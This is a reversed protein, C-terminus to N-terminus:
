WSGGRGGGGSSSGGGFSVGTGRSGARQLQERVAPDALQFRRWADADLPRGAQVDNMWADVMSQHVYDPYRRQLSTLRYLLEARVVDDALNRRQPRYTFRQRGLLVGGGSTYATAPGRGSSSSTSAAAAASCPPRMDDPAAGQADEDIPKRCIPCNTKTQAWETICPECFAHGCPLGLPRRPTHPAPMSSSSSSGAARSSGAGAGKLNTELPASSGTKAQAGGGGPLLPASPGSDAVVDDAAAAAAASSGSGGGGVEDFDELCIPCSTARYDNRAAAQQDRKLKELKTLAGRYRQRERRSKVIGYAFAGAGLTMFSVLIWDIGGGQKGGGGGPVAQGALALGIDVVATEVAQDYRDVALTSTMGATFFLAFNIM